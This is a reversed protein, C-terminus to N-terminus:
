TEQTLINHRVQADIIAQIARELDGSYSYQTKGSCRHDGPNGMRYKVSFPIM